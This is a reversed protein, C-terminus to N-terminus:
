DTSKRWGNRIMYAFTTYNFVTRIGAEQCAVRYDELFTEFEARLEPPLTEEAQLQAQSKAM